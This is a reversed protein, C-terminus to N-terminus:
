PIIEKPTSSTNKTPSIVRMASCGVQVGLCDENFALIVCVGTVTAVLFAIEIEM